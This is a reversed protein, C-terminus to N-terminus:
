RIATIEGCCLDGQSGFIKGRKCTEIYKGKNHKKWKAVVSQM